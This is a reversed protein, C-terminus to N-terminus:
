SSAGSAVGPDPSTDALRVILPVDEVTASRLSEKLM